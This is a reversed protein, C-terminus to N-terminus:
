TDTAHGEHEVERHPFRDRIRTNFYVGKAFASGLAEAVQPPVGSYVYRRGTVFEVWLEQADHDYAFRRIVTSPM